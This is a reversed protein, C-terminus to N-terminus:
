KEVKDIIYKVLNVNLVGISLLSIVIGIILYGGNFDEIQKLIITLGLVLYIFNLIPLLIYKHLLKPNVYVLFKLWFTNKTQIIGSQTRYESDTLLMDAKKNGATMAENVIKLYKQIELNNTDLTNNAKENYIIDYYKRIAENKLVEIARNVRYFDEKNENNEILTYYRNVQKLYHVAIKVQGVNPRLDLIKYYDELNM